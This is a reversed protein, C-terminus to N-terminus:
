RTWSSSRSRSRWGAGQGPFNANVWRVLQAGKFNVNERVDLRRGGVEYGALDTRLRDILPGWRARDVSETGLNMDPHNAPDAPQGKRRYNYSHLDLLVFRDHERDKKELLEHLEEYFRTHLALSEQAVDDPLDGWWVELGWCDEPKRYVAKEPPRNLDVEFRSRNVVVRSDGITTWDGTFPDEERLREQGSLAMHEAVSFRLDHGGHIATAVIPGPASEITWPESAM